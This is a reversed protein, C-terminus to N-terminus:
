AGAQSIPNGSIDVTHLSQNDELVCALDFAFADDLLNGAVNLDALTYNDQISDLFLRMTKSKLNNKSLNLKVLTRNLRMAQGLYLLDDFGLYCYKFNLSTIYYDNSNELANSIYDMAPSVIQKKSKFYENNVMCVKQTREDIEFRGNKDNWRNQFLNGFQSNRMNLSM